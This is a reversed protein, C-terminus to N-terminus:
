GNEMCLHTPVDMGKMVRDVIRNLVKRQFIGSPEYKVIIEDALPIVRLRCKALYSNSRLALALREAQETVRPSPRPVAKLELALNRLGPVEGLREEAKSIDSDAFYLAKVTVEGNRVEIEDNFLPSDKEGVIGVIQGRLEEDEVSRAPEVRVLDIM